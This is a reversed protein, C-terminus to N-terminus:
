GALSVESLSSPTDTRHGRRRRFPAVVVAAIAVLVGVLTVLSGVTTATTGGYDLTVTHSTPVVVMLNPSVRYPGLAGTAHWRPYYSAHVLVPVGLRDVTFRIASV